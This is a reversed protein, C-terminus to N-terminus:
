DRAFFLSILWRRESANPTSNTPLAQTRRPLSDRGLPDAVSESVQGTMQVHEIRRDRQEVGIEVGPAEPSRCGREIGGLERLRILNLRREFVHVVM